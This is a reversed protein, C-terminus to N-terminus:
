DEDDDLCELVQSPDGSVEIALNQEHDLGVITYSIDMLLPSGVLAEAILDLQDEISELSILDGSDILVTGRVRGDPDAAVRGELQEKTLPETLPVEDTHDQAFVFAM